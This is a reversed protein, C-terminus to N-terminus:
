QREDVILDLEEQTRADICDQKLKTGKTKNLGITYSVMGLFNFREDWKLNYQQDDISSVPFPFNGEKYLGVAIGAAIGIWNRQANDSLSFMLGSYEFGRYIIEQTKSDISNIKLLKRDELTGILDESVKIMEDSGDKIEKATAKRWIIVKEM